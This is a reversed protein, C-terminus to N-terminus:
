YESNSSKSSVSSRRSSNDFDRAVEQGNGHGYLPGSEDFGVSGSQKKNLYYSWPVNKLNPTTGSTNHVAYYENNQGHSSRYAPKAYNSGTNINKLGSNHTTSSSSLWRDLFSSM